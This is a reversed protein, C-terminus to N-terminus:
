AMAEAFIPKLIVESVQPRADGAIRDKIKIAVPREARVPKRMLRDPVAEVTVSARSEWIREALEATPTGGEPAKKSLGLKLKHRSDALQSVYEAHEFPKGLRL